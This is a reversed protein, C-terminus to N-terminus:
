YSLCFYKRITCSGFFFTDQDQKAQYDVLLERTISVFDQNWIRSIIFPGQLKCPKITDKVTIMHMKLLSLSSTM